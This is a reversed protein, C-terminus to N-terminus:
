QEELWVLLEEGVAAFTRCQMADALAPGFCGELWGPFCPMACCTSLGKGTNIAVIATLTRIFFLNFVQYM